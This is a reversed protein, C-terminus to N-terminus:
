GNNGKPRGRRAPAADPPDGTDGDGEHAPWEPVVKRWAASLFPNQDAARGTRRAYVKAFHEVDLSAGPGESACVVARRAIDVCTGYQFAAAHMLRPTARALTEPTLAIGAAKCLEAIPRSVKENDDGAALQNLWVMDIRRKLERDESLIPESAPTGSIVLSVPWREHNLLSKLSNRIKQREIPNATGVLNNIEDIHVALIGRARLQDRVKVWVVNERGDEIPYGGARLIEIGLVGLTCSGPVRVDLAACGSAPDGYGPFVPHTQFARRILRSKGSGSEGFVAIGRAEGVGGSHRSALETLVDELADEFRKDRANAFYMASLTKTLEFVEPRTEAQHKLLRGLSRQAPNGAEDTM